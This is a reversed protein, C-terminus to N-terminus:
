RRGSDVLRLTYDLSSEIRTQGSGLMELSDTMYLFDIRATSDDPELQLVTADSDDATGRLTRWPGQVRFSRDEGQEAELYTMTLRFTGDGSHETGLLTLRYRIGPGDAAPLLGEYIRFTSDGTAASDSTAARGVDGTKKAAPGGCAAVSALLLLFPLKRLFSLRNM